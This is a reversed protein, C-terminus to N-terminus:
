GSSVNEGQGGLMMGMPSGQEVAKGLTAAAKALKPAADIKEQQEMKQNRIARIQEVVKKDKLDKLPFGVAEYIDAMVAGDDVWDAVQPGLTEMVMKTLAFGTQISRIKALRTQAQALMGLYNVKMQEHPIDRLIQPPPPIKGQRALIDYVRWILPDCAESKLNGVRTGLIASKEGQLEMVQEIVMRESHGAQALQSMMMFVETHFYANVIQRDRDMYEINFPLSQVGTHLPQPMRARIDGRNAELWTVTDPDKQLAGRQDSYAVLPPRAARHATELNDRGEQNLRAITVWADHGPGRGYVEDSNRRWAWTIHPNTDYGSEGILKTDDTTRGISAMPSVLKGNKRYLWVSEWPKNKSDIRQPNYDKRPYVAHLIETEEHMNSKYKNVFNSDVECMKEYGFKDVLQRLTMLYVRYKTDVKGHRNRAIYMERFHPVTFIIRDQGVEEEVILHATGVTACDGVFEPVIDYFNSQNLVTYMVTQVDQLWRQVEPYESVLKGTWSRMISYRPFNFYGPVELAFWPQNRSFFNGVMGDVLQNKALLATDDFIFMGTPQGPWLDKDQVSRRGHNVYMILNDIMPEWYLRQQALISLVKECDKAIQDDTRPGIKSPPGPSTVQQPIIAAPYM